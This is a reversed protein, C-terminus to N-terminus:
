YCRREDSVESVWESVTPWFIALLRAFATRDKLWFKDSMQHIFAPRHDVLWHDIALWKQGPAGIWVRTWCRHWDSVECLQSDTSLHGVTSCISNQEKALIQWGDSSYFDTWPWGGSPFCLALLQSVFPWCNALRNASLWCVSLQCIVSLTCRSNNNVIVLFGLSIDLLIFLFAVHLM